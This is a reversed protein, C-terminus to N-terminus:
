LTIKNVVNPDSFFAQYCCGVRDINTQLAQTCNESCQKSGSPLWWQFCATLTATTQNADVRGPVASFFCSSEPENVSDNAYFACLRSEIGAVMYQVEPSERCEKTSRLFDRFKGACEETCM